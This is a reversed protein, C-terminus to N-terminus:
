LYTLWVLFGIVFLLVALRFLFDGTDAQLRKPCDRGQNCKGDCCYRRTM